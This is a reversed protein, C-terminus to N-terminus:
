REPTVMAGSPAPSLPGGPGSPAGAAPAQPTTRAAEEAQIDAVTKFEPAQELQERSADLRLVLRQNPDRTVNLSKWDVAIDRDGIGLFGGVGLVVAKLSGDQNMVIDSISGLSEGAANQVQTGIINNALYEDDAQREVFQPAAGTMTPPQAGPSAPMPAGAAPPATMPAGQQAPQQTPQATQALASTALLALAAATFPLERRM